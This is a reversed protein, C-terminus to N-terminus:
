QVCLVYRKRLYVVPPSNWIYPIINFIGHYLMLCMFVLILFEFWNVVDKWLVDMSEQSDAMGHNRLALTPLLFIYYHTKNTIQDTTPIGIYNDSISVPPCDAGICPLKGSIWQYGGGRM